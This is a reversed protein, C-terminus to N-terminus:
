DGFLQEPIYFSMKTNDAFKRDSDSFDNVRGAADGCYFGAKVNVLYKYAVYLMDPNPKRYKDDETSMLLIFEVNYAKFKSIVDDMRNIKDAISEKPTVKQNSFIVITYGMNIYNKLINIRNPMIINDTANRPFKSRGRPKVLTWDLDFGAIVESYINYRDPTHIYVTDVKDWM